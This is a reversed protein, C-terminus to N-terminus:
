KKEGWNMTVSVPESTGSSPLNNEDLAKTTITILAEKTTLADIVDGAKVNESNDNWTVTVSEIYNGEFDITPNQSVNIDFTSDNNIKVKAICTKSNLSKELNCTITVTKGDESVVPNANITGNGDSVESFGVDWSMTDYNVNGEVKLNQSLVAYGIGLATVFLAIIAVALKKREKKDNNKRM